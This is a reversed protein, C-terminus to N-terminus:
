RSAAPKMAIPIPVVNAGDPPNVIQNIQAALAEFAHLMEAQYQHRDYVQRVGGIVHGLCREAIDANVNARSALSRATRRLDHIRWGTVGSAADLQRKARSVHVLPRSGATFVYPVGVIRPQAALM